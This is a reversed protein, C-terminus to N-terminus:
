PCGLHWVSVGYWELTSAISSGNDNHFTIGKVAVELCLLDVLNRVSSPFFWLQICM